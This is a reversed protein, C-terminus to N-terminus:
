SSDAGLDPGLYTTTGCESCESARDCAVSTLAGFGLSDAADTAMDWLYRM